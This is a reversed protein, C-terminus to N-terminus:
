VVHEPSSNAVSDATFSDGCDSSRMRQWKVRMQPRICDELIIEALATYLSDTDMELEEFKSVDCFKAFFNFYLELM